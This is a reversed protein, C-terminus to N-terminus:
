DVAVSQLVNRGRLGEGVSNACVSTSHINSLILESTVTDGVHASILRYLVSGCQFVNVRTDVTRTCYAYVGM